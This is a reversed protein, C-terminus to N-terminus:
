FYPHIFVTYVRFRKKHPNAEPEVNYGFSTRIYSCTVVHSWMYGCTVVHLWMYSTMEIIYLGETVSRIMLGLISRSHKFPSFNKSKFTKEMYNFLLLKSPVM